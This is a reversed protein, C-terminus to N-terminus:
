LIHLAISRLLFSLRVLKLRSSSKIQARLPFDDPVLRKLSRTMQHMSPVFGVQSAKLLMSISHCSLKWMATIMIIPTRCWTLIFVSSDICFFFSLITRFWTQILGFWSLLKSHRFKSLNVCSFVPFVSWGGLFALWVEAHCACALHLMWQLRLSNYSSLM